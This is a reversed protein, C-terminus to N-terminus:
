PKTNLYFMLWCGGVCAAPPQPGPVLEGKFCSLQLSKEHQMGLHHELLLPVRPTCSFSKYDEQLFSGIRIGLFPLPTHVPSTRSSKHQITSPAPNTNRVLQRREDRLAVWCLTPDKCRGLFASFFGITSMKAGAASFKYGLVLFVLDLFWNLLFYGKCSFILAQFSRFSAQFYSKEGRELRHNM